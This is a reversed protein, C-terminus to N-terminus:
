CNSQTQQKVDNLPLIMLHLLIHCASPIFVAWIQTVDNISRGKVIILFLRLLM